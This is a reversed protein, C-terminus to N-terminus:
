TWPSPRLGVYLNQSTSITWPSPTLGTVYTYNDMASTTYEHMATYFNRYVIPFTQTSAAFRTMTDNEILM